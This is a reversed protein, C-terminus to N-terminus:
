QRLRMVYGVGSYFIVLVFQIDNTFYDRNIIIYM